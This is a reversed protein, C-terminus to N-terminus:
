LCLTLLPLFSVVVGFPSSVLVPVLLVRFVPLVRFPLVPVPWVRPSVPPPRFPGFVPASRPVSSRFGVSQPPSPVSVPSSSASQPPTAVPSSMVPSSDVVALGCTSDAVTCSPRSLLSSSSEPVGIHRLDYRLCDACFCVPTVDYSAPKELSPPSVPVQLNRLDFRLCHPCGCSLSADYCSPEEVIVDMIISFLNRKLYLFVGLRPGGDAPSRRM